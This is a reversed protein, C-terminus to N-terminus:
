FGADLVQGNCLQTGLGGLRHRGLFDDQGGAVANVPHCQATAFSTSAAILVVLRDPGLGVFDFVEYFHDTRRHFVHLFLPLAASLCPAQILLYLCITFLLNKFM